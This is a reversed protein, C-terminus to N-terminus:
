WSLVEMARGKKRKAADDLMIQLCAIIELHEWVDDDCAVEDDM